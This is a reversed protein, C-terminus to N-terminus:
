FKGMAIVRYLANAEEFRANRLSFHAMEASDVDSTPDVISLNILSNYFRCLQDLHAELRESPCSFSVGVHQVGKAFRDDSTQGEREENEARDLWNIAEHIFRGLVETRTLEGITSHGNAIPTQDRLLRGILDFTPLTPPLFPLADLFSQSNPTSKSLLGVFLPHALTPNVSVIPSLDLTTIIHSSILGPILPILM